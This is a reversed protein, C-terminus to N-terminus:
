PKIVISPTPFVVFVEDRVLHQLGIVHINSSQLNGTELLTSQLCAIILLSIFQVLSIMM